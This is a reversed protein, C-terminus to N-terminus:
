ITFETDPVLTMFAEKSERCVGGFIWIDQNALIRGRQYKRKWLHSEDIEVHLGPGGICIDQNAVVIFCIQRCYSYWDVACEKSVGCQGAASSVPVQFFWYLTLELATLFSIKTDDFWTNLTLSIKSRCRQVGTQCCVWQLDKNEDRDVRRSIIKLSACSCEPANELSILGTHVAFAFADENNKVLRAWTMLGFPDTSLLDQVNKLSITLPPVPPPTQQPPIPIQPHSFVLQRCTLSPRPPTLPIIPVPIRTPTLPIHSPANPPTLPIHPPRTPTLTTRVPPFPLPSGPSPIPVPIRSPLNPNTQKNINKHLM